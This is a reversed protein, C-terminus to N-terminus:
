TGTEAWTPEDAPVLQVRALILERGSVLRTDTSMCGACRLDQPMAETEKGCSLCQVRPSVVEMVLVADEAVSGRRAFRFAEQLLEPEVGSLVGVTIEVRRVSAANHQRTLETLQDIIDECLSLEHM